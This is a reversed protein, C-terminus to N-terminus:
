SDIDALWHYIDVVCRASLGQVPMRRVDCARVESPWGGTALQVDDLLRLLAPVHKLHAHLDLRLVGVKDIMQNVGNDIGGDVIAHPLLSQEYAAIWHNGSTKWNTLTESLRIQLDTVGEGLVDLLPEAQAANLRGLQQQAQQLDVLSRRVQETSSAVRRTTSQWQVACGLMVFVSILSTLILTRMM